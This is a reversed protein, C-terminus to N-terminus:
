LKKRLTLVNKGDIREYNISDMIQRMLHIGLGGIGREEASLTTDIEAKLTPDFPNGSDTITFKLRQDNVQAEVCIDGKTESPYAYQMVNVVAEEMALNMQMTTGMDFGVAECAQEVFESLRPVENVDNSLIIENKYRVDLQQKTYQIALLTIDDSQEAGDVFETVSSTMNKIINEPKHSCKSAIKMIREEGFQNHENDEAESLGDTFLFISFGPEIITEQVTFKWDYIAGLPINSDCPLERPKDEIILPADHGANCYRLRGTPLDLVGLFLTVFMNYDNGDCLSDNLATVIREPSSEHAVNSRFLSRTAAMFLSAPIGKGSVDGICFFLKEDRLFFDYLYGGIVKAPTLSGYIDIDDRDPYPPYAKPLMAMQIRSAIKLDSDLSVKQTHITNLKVFTRFTRYIIFALLLFGLLSLALIRSMSKNLSEYILNEPAIVALSWGTNGEVPTFYIYNESGNDDKIVCQGSGGEKMDEGLRYFSSDKFNTVVEDLTNQVMINNEQSTLIKGTKSMLINYSSQFIHRENIVKNLFDLPIDACLVGVVKGKQDHIPITYSCLTMKAGAEDFYPDSWSPQDLEIVIRYWNSQQYDHWPGGLQRYEVQGDNKRLAFPQYWKGHEPYYYPEFAMSCGVILPNAEVIRRELTYLHSTDNLAEEFVWGFNNVVDEVSNTVAKIELNKLQLETEARRQVQHTISAKSFWYQAFFIAVILLAASFIILFTFQTQFSKTWSFIKKIM